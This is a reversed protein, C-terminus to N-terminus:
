GRSRSGEIREEIEVDSEKRGNSEVTIQHFSEKIKEGGPSEEESRELIEQIKTVGKEVPEIAQNITVKVDQVMQQGGELVIDQVSETISTGPAKVETETKEIVASGGEKGEEIDLLTKETRTSIKEYDSVPIFQYPKVSFVFVHALAAIAM